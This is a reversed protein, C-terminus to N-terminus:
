WIPNQIDFYYDLKKNQHSIEVPAPLIWEGTKLAQSIHNAVVMNTEISFHCVCRIEFYNLVAEHPFEYKACKKPAIGRIMADNYQLLSPGTVEPVLSLGWLNKPNKNFREYFINIFITDPRIRKIDAILLKTIDLDFERNEMYVYYDRIAHLKQLTTSDIKYKKSHTILYDSTGACSPFLRKKNGFDVGFGKGLFNFKPDREIYIEASPHRSPYSILFVNKDYQDHYKLFEKYSYYNSSGSVGYSTVEYDNGLNYFWAYQSMESFDEHGHEANAYSDGYVGVKIM